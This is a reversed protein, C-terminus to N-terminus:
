VLSTLSQLTYIRVSISFNEDEFQAGYISEGGTGDCNIIDGGQIM